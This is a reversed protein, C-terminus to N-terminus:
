RSSPGWVKRYLLYLSTAAVLAPILVFLAGKAYILGLIGIPLAYWVWRPLRDLDPWALWVVGLILGARLALTATAEYAALPQYGLLIAALSLSALAILGLLNRRM